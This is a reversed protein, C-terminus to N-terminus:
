DSDAPDATESQHPQAPWDSTEVEGAALAGTPGTEVITPDKWVRLVVAGIVILWLGGLVVLGVPGTRAAAGVLGAYRDAGVALSVAVFLGVAPIGFLLFVTLSLAFYKLANWKTGGERTEGSKLPRKALYFPVALVWIALTAVCWALWNARRSSADWAVWASVLFLLMLNLAM